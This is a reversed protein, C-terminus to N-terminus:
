NPTISLDINKIFCFLNPIINSSFFVEFTGHKAYQMMKHKLQLIPITSTDAVQSKSKCALIYLSIVPFEPSTTM